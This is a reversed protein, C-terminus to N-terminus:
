NIENLLYHFYKQSISELSKQHIPEFKLKLLTKLDKRFIIRLIKFLDVHIKEKGIFTNKLEPQYGLVSVLNWFFYYYILTYTKPNLTYSNLKEFTENLLKWIEEDPEQGRILNNLVELIQEATKIKELGNKINSFSSILIADTLTKYARGQIFEIESLCFLQMSGRLKSKIKRIARGLVEIKGFDKTYVTFLQDAEERDVVKIVFGQTRYHTFM